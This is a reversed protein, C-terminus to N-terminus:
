ASGGESSEASPKDSLANAFSGTSPEVAAAPQPNTPELQIAPQTITSETPFPPVNAKEEQAQPQMTQVLKALTLLTHITTTPLELANVGM